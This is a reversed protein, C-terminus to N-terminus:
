YGIVTLGYPLKMRTHGFLAEAVAVTKEYDSSAVDRGSSQYKYSNPVALAL